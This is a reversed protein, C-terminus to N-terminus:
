SAKTYRWLKIDCDDGCTVLLGADKPNWRVSNVDGGHAREVSAVMDFSPANDRDMGSENEKFIRISDDGSATALLGTQHCWDIDYVTRNHYGSLTCVCKWAPTNGETVIGQQNGPPYEQWIKVTKDDSCSAIRTGSENFTVGWVTSDHGQLTALSCWDDDEEHFLRVTNDYSASAIVEKHPHWCIQKVDQSHVSLVGACEYDEGDQDVEWIWVSKDRSCTALLAGSRSWAASKVENEHGELTATCEFEGSKRDWICTTADFSASALMNGCPSWTIRRITRTHSDELITKCVWNDGEKGWIRIIKDGGCSALLTGQPNWSACWVREQHGSLTAVPELKCEM